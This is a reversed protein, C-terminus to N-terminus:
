LKDRTDAFDQPVTAGFSHDRSALPNREDDSVPSTSNTSEVLHVAFSMVEDWPIRWRLALRVDIGEREDADVTM